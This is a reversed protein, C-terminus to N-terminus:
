CWFKGPTGITANLVGDGQFSWRIVADGITALFLLAFVFRGFMNAKLLTLKWFVNSRKLYEDVKRTKDTVIPRDHRIQKIELYPKKIIM